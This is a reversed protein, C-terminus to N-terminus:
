DDDINNLQEFGKDLLKRFILWEEDTLNKIPRDGCFVLDYCEEHNNWDWIAIVYSTEPSKFCDKHINIFKYDENKPHYYDGEKIFEPERGYYRNPEWKCISYGIHEPPTGLYSSKRFELNGIRM